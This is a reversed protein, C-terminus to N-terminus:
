AHMVLKAIKQTDQVKADLEVFGIVELMHQRAKTERLVEININESFKTALGTMDGYYIATKGAAMTSMNDSTYVDKGFLTYGWRSNADKNM